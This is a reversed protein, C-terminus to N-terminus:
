EAETQPIPRSIKMPTAPARGPSGTGNRSALPLASASTRPRIKRPGHEAGRGPVIEAVSLRPDGRLVQLPQRPGDGFRNVPLLRDAAYVLLRGRVPERPPVRAPDNVQSVAIRGYGSGVFIILCRRNRDTTGGAMWRM